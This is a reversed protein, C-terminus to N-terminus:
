CPRIVRDAQTMIEVTEQMSGIGGILLKERLGHYDLCTGCSAIQTGRSEMIKLADLAEGPQTTLTVAGNVVGIFDIKAESSALSKLFLVLLKQGLIDDGRGMTNANLYLFNM